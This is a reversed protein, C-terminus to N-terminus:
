FKVTPPRDSLSQRQIKGSLSVLALASSPRATQPRKLPFHRPQTELLNPLELSIHGDVHGHARKLPFSANRHRIPGHNNCTSRPWSNQLTTPHPFAYAAVQWSVSRAGYIGRNPVIIRGLLRGCFPNPGCIKMDPVMTRERRQEAGCRIM